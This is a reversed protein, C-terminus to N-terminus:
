PCSLQHFVQKGNQSILLLNFLNQHKIKIDRNHSALLKKINM